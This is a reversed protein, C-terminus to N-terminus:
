TGQDCGCRLVGHQEVVEGAALTAAAPSTVREIVEHVRDLHRLLKEVVCLVVGVQIRDAVFGRELLQDAALLRVSTGSWMRIARASEAIRSPSRSAYSARHRLPSPTAGAPSTTSSTAWIAM